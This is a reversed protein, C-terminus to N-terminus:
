MKLGEQAVEGYGEFRVDSDISATIASFIYTDRNGVIYRVLAPLRAKNLARQHRLDPPIDGDENFSFVKSVMRLPVMSVYFERRAQVGRIAPFVYEFAPTMSQTNRPPM